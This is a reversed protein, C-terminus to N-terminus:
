PGADILDRARDACMLGISTRLVARLSTDIPKLTCASREGPDWRDCLTKSGSNTSNTDLSLDRWNCSGSSIANILVKQRRGTTRRSRAKREFALFLIDILSRLAAVPMFGFSTRAAIAPKGGLRM